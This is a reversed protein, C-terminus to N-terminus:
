SYVWVERPSKKILLSYIILFLFPNAFILSDSYVLENSQFTWRREQDEQLYNAMAPFDGDKGTEAHGQIILAGRTM